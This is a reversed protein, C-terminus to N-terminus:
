AARFDGMLRAAAPRNGSTEGTLFELGTFHHTIGNTGNARLTRVVRASSRLPEGEDLTLRLDLLEGIPFGVTTQICLGGLSIDIVTVRMNLPVVQGQIQEVIELRLFRRREVGVYHHEARRDSVDASLSHILDAANTLPSSGATIPKTM